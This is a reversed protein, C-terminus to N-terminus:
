AYISFSVSDPAIMKIDTDLYEQSNKIRTIASDVDQITKQVNVLRQGITHFDNAAKEYPHRHLHALCAYLQRNKSYLTEHLLSPYQYKTPPKGINSVKTPRNTLFSNASARSSHPAASTFKPTSLNGVPSAQTSKSEDNDEDLSIDENDSESAEGLIVTKSSHM